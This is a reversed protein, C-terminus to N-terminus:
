EDAEKHLESNIIQVVRDAYEFWEGHGRHESLVSHLDKELGMSSLVFGLMNMPYPCGTQLLRMRAYPDGSTFGIKVWIAPEGITIFYVYGTEPGYMDEGEFEKAGWAGVQQGALHNRARDFCSVM